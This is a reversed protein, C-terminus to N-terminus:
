ILQKWCVSVDFNCLLLTLEGLNEDPSVLLGPVCVFLLLMLIYGSQKKNKPKQNKTKGLNSEM